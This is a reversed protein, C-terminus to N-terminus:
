YFVGLYNSLSVVKGKTVGFSWQKSFWQYEAVKGFRAKSM